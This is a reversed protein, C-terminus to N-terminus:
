TRQRKLVNTTHGHCWLLPTTTRDKGKVSRLPACGIILLAEDSGVVSVACAFQWPLSTYPKAMGAARAPDHTQTGCAALLFLSHGTM